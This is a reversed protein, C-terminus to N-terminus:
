RVMVRPEGGFDEIRCGLVRAMRRVAARDPKAGGTEWRQVTSSTTGIDGALEAITVDAALRHMRLARGNWPVGPDNM